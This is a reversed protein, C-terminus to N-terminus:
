PARFGYTGLIAQGAPSLVFDVFAQALEANQTRQLVGIPYSNAAREAGAIDVGEVDGGSGAVDTVYILGADAEGAAVKTRVATVNQEESVPSVTIGDLDLLTHSADGCPVEPACLVVLLDDRALDALGTIGKPNGPEVAIQLTNIVFIEAPALLEAEVKAMNSENASAFIDVPAGELIQTALTSSGDFSIPAFSVGPNAATFAETLETFSDTLSAAAFITLEGQLGTEPAPEPAPEPQASACGALLLATAAAAIIRIRKM